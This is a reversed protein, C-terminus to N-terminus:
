IISSSHGACGLALAEKCAAATPSDPSVAAAVAVVM